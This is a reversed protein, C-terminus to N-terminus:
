PSPAPALVDLLPQLLTRYPRWRGVSSRYIPKRVQASSATLIPRRTEHFALCREEWPLGCHAIIARASAELNDVVDEYRVDIMVGAPLASRWHTMLAQYARFYRGLEGLEYAFPQNGAFLLSFCSLCTDVPDRCAHIIRANPLALHIVGIFVFNPPMKNVIREASGAASGIQRLYATGIQRLDEAALGPLLDLIESAGKSRVFNSVTIGFDEREGAAFVRSHSALIQEILTTGSRPMGVVFVPAESPDGGGQKEALLEATLTARMREFIELTETEAYAIQRRKLANGEVLHRFSREPQNLDASAKGLAFHLMMRDDDSLTSDPLLRELAALRPDDDDAFPRSRALNLHFAPQRPSFEVAREYARGAEDLRGLAQLAIGLRHHATAHAPDISLTNELQAIAAEHRQLTILVEGLNCSADAYGPRIALARKYSAIADTSRGLTRLSNGLNNSAEAYDPRLALATQYHAMAEVDRKLAHLADGLNRHADAHSPESVLVQEFQTIADQRRDLAALVIGLNCRAQAFKPNIALAREFAARAEELRGLAHLLHGLNNHTEAHDEKIALATRYHALAEAPRGLAHLANGLNSLGEAYRPRIALARHYHVLADECRGLAYLANGLNNHTDADEANVALATQYCALAQEFRNLRALVVGLGAQIDASQPAAGTTAARRFLLVADDIRGQQARISGLRFVSAFHEPAVALIRRYLQEAESLQGQGQLQRALDFADGICVTESGSTSATPMTM